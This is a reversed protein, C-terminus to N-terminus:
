FLKKFSEVRASERKIEWESKGAKEAEKAALEFRGKKRYHEIAEEKRGFETTPESIKEMRVIPTTLLRRTDRSCCHPCAQEKVEFTKSFIDFENGCSQCLYAYIPM